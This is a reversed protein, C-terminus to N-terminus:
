KPPWRKRWAPYDRELLGKAYPGYWSYGTRREREVNALRYVKKGDRNAMFPRNTDIEYFRAWLPPAGPDEVAVLDFRSTHYQFRVPEVPVRELRLNTIQSRELWAVGSEIAQRVAPSPANLNMLYKLAGVSEASTLGAPEFARGGCPELTAEDYQSAWGTLNGDVRVLLKLLCADGRELADLTRRRLADPVFDYCETQTAIRRVASLVGVMVDDVMTVHPYYNKKSPYTHPWGGNAYQAQLIFEVGRLSSDRYRENGIRQYALALYEVEPYTARNDFSTDDKAREAALEQQEVETLIRLPDFDKPWGGSARQYLLLNDAIERVQEPRYVPYDDVNQGNKWHNIGDRFGDLSIPEVGFAPCASLVCAAVIALTHRRALAAAIM